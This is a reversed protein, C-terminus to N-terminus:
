FRLKNFFWKNKGTKCAMSYKDEFAKKVEKRASARATPNSVVDATVTQKLDVDLAYRTPMIHNYNVTKVFPKVRSRKAIKKQSMSKSRSHTSALALWLVTVTHVTAPAM